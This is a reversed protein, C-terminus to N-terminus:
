GDVTSPRSSPPTRCVRLVGPLAFAPLSPARGRADAGEEPLPRMAMVASGSISRRRQPWSRIWRRTRPWGDSSTTALQLSCQPRSLSCSGSSACISPATEPNGGRARLRRARDVRRRCGAGARDARRPDRIRDHRRRAAQGRRHRSGAFSRGGERGHRVLAAFRGARHARHASVALSRRQRQAREALARRDCGARGVPSSRKRRPTRAGSSRLASAAMAGFLVAAVLASSPGRVDPSALRRRQLCNFRLAASRSLYGASTRAGGLLESVRPM